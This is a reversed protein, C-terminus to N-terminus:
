KIIWTDLRTKAIKSYNLWICSWKKKYYICRLQLNFLVSKTITARLVVTKVYICISMCVSLHICKSLLQAGYWCRPRLLRTAVMIICYKTIIYYICILISVPFINNNDILSNLCPFLSYNCNKIANSSINLANHNYFTFKKVYIIIM